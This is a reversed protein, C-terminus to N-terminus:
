KGVVQQLLVVACFTREFEQWSFVAVGVAAVTGASWMWADMLGKSPLALEGAGESPLAEYCECHIGTTGEYQQRLQAEVRRVAAREVLTVTCGGFGGGTMRSGLVGPIKLALDVLIDLEKCSVEYDDRLSMHSQTMNTGVTVFDGTKLAAVVALTRENETICHRARRFIVEEMDDKVAELMVMTTDRLSKVEPYKKQIIQVAATCQQVRVPYESGSLSHKVNSNTVLVVPGNEGKGFPVLEYEQSRCDICLLNGKVGMASIYQDMIGCPTDAFTHEAKQCRRAKIVPSIDSLGCLKEIFTAMAVELAASSSLGSGLPVNSVVVADFAFDPPINPLYQYISGKIYNAWTPDGKKMDSSIVFSCASQFSASYIRSERSKSISGVIITKFPLAFPLVFGENYDVHEGILNVRGPAFVAVKPRCGFNKEYTDVATDLLSSPFIELRM